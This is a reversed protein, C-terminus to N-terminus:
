LSIRLPLETTALQSLRILLRQATKDSAANAMVSVIKGLAWIDNQIRANLGESLPESLTRMEPSLWDRSTGGCGSVDILIAKMAISSLVINAPKLDMHTIGLEYLRSLASTIQIAWQHWPLGGKPSQLFSQLTGNSHYELLIGRLVNQDGSNNTDMTRYPNRSVVAAVLQVVGDVGRLLLLNRLEQELTESDRPKYLPRDVEKYVYIVEDGIIHAKHVGMGLEGTKTIESIHKTPVCGFSTDYLLFRVRSPDERVLVCLYDIIPSYETEVDPRGKIHLMQWKHVNTPPDQYEIILETVTDDLLKILDFDICLCLNMLHQRRAPKAIFSSTQASQLTGRFTVKVNWTLHLSHYVLRLSRSRPEVGKEWVEEEYSRPVFDIHQLHFGSVMRWILSLATSPLLM